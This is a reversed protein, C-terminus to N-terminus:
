RRGKIAELEEVDLQDKTRNATAKMALLDDISAVLVRYGDIEVRDARRRLTAYRPAGPPDVLLDLPGAATDLTLLQIRRLAPADHVFPVDDEVGRLQAGLDVLVTGLAELNPTDTAYSIDLDQTLRASGHAVMAIGGIVVFDVCGVTLRRLLETPSFEPWSAV